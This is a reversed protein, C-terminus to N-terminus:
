RFLIQSRNPSAIQNFTSNNQFILTILRIMNSLQQM